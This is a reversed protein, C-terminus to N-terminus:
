SKEKVLNKIFELRNKYNLRNIKKYTELMYSEANEINNFTPIHDKIADFGYIAKKSKLRDLEAVNRVGKVLIYIDPKGFKEQNWDAPNDDLCDFPVKAVAIYGSSMYYNALFEGYCDCYIAGYKFACRVMKPLIHKVATIEAKKNNKHVSMMEGDTNIAFGAIGNGILFNQSKQYVDIDRLLVYSGHENITKADRLSNWFTQFQNDKLKRFRPKVYIKEKM